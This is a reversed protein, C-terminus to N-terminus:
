VLLLRILANHLRLINDSFQEVHIRTRPKLVLWEHNTYKYCFWIMYIHYFANLSCEPESVAHGPKNGCSTAIASFPAFADCLSLMSAGSEIHLIHVCCVCHESLWCVTNVIATQVNSFVIIVPM